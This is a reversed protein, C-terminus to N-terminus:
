GKKSSAKKIVSDVGSDKGGARVYKKFYEMAKKENMLKTYYIDGIMRLAEVNQSNAKGRGISAQYSDIARDYQKTSMYLKGLKFLLNPDGTSYQLGRNLASIAGDLDGQEEKIYAILMFADYNKPNRRAIQEYIAVAEGYKGTAEFIRAMSILIDVNRPELKVANQFYYM